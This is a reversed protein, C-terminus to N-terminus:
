PRGNEIGLLSLDAGVKVGLLGGGGPVNKITIM